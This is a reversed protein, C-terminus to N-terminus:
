RPPSTSVISKRITPAPTGPAIAALVIAPTLVEPLIAAKGGAPYFVYLPVGNRGFEALAQTIEPNQVTWDAKMRVIGLEKFRQIVEERNLAVRKNVQCTICWTATFDVFIAKGEGRLEALKKASFPVWGDEIRVATSGVSKSEPWAITIGVIAVLLAAIM